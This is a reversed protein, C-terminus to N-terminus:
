DVALAAVPSVRTARRAPLLSAAVTILLTVILVGAVTVWPISPVVLRGVLSGFTAQAGVWGYFVGLLLGFLASSVIMAVAETVIMRRVQGVTFGLARLLGLERKRQMVSLSLTNVMGVAALLVSFGLLVSMIATTVDIVQEFAAYMEPEMQGFELTIARFTETAVAFMTVLTIGIVLGIVARSSRAPNRVPNAAALRTVPGRGLARGSLSMLPPLIVPSGIVVGVFSFMGGVVSVLVGTPSSLGLFVGGVLMAVGLAILIVATVSRGRGARLEQMTPEAVASTAAIPSVTLVRRSGVWSAIVTAATVALVPALVAPHVIPFPFPDLAGNTIALQAGLATLGVGLSAGAAAGSAGQVLGERVTRARLSRGSAGILRLLAIEKTRGAIVTAVSNSTVVAGVFLAITFFLAAITGLVTALQGIESLGSADFYAALDAVIMILVTGFAASLASVLVVAAGGSSQQSEPARHAKVASTTKSANKGAVASM